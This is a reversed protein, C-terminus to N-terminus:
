TPEPIYEDETVTEDEPTLEPEVTGTVSQCEGDILQQNASCVITVNALEVDWDDEADVEIWDGFEDFYGEPEVFQIKKAQLSAKIDRNTMFTSTETEKDYVPQEIVVEIGETALYTEALATGPATLESYEALLTKDKAVIRIYFPKENTAEFSKVLQQKENYENMKVIKDGAFTAIDHFALMNRLNVKENTQIAYSKVYNDNPLVVHVPVTFFDVEPVKQETAQSRTAVFFVGIMAVLIIGSAVILLQLKKNMEKM